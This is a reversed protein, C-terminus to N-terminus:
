PGHHAHVHVGSASGTAAADPAALLVLNPAKKKKQQESGRGENKPRFLSFDVELGAKSLQDALEQTAVAPDVWERLWAESFRM